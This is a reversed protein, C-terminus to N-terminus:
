SSLMKTLERHDTKGTGLKPISKVVVLERPACLNSLGKARVAARVDTLQLHPENTVAILKEGKDDDPQAIVAIAGRPVATGEQLTHLDAPQLHPVAAATAAVDNVLSVVELRLGERLAGEEVVWPLNTLSASGDVVPGAVAFCARTVSLNVEAIFARAIAELGPYDRSPFRKQALPARPGRVDSIQGSVVMGVVNAVLFGTFAWGYARLGHLERAATPLAASVAMAEFAILTILILIGISTARLPGRFLSPAPATAM